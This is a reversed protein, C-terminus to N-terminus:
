LSKILLVWITLLISRLLRLAKYLQAEVTRPSINLLDAIESTKREELYSMIFIERCKEPLKGVERYIHCLRDDASYLFQPDDSFYLEEIKLKTIVTNMYNNKVNQHKLYDLCAHKVAHYLYTKIGENLLIFTQKQWIKLFIDQVLDEATTADVYKSAYFILKPANTKYLDKFKAFAPDEEKLNNM